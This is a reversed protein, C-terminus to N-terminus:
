KKEIKQISQLYRVIQVIKTRVEAEQNGDQDMQQFGLGWIPMRRTGHGRVDTRGDIIQYVKDAPFNGGDRVSLLTLDAPAVALDEAMPGKGLAAEGHCVACYIDFLRKGDNVPDTGAFILSGIAVAALLVLVTILDASKRV